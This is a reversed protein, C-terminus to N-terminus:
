VEVVERDVHEPVFNNVAAIYGRIAAELREEVEERTAGCTVCGPLSPCAARYEGHENQSIHISLKM